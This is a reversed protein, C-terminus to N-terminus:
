INDDIFDKQYSKSLDMLKIFFNEMYEKLDRNKLYAANKALVMEERSHNVIDISNDLKYKSIELVVEMRKEFLSVLDKDIRDIEERLEELDKM